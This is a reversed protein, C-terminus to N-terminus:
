QNQALWVDLDNLNSFNRLAERLDSLRKSDLHQIKSQQARQISGFKGNLLEMVRSPSISTSTVM